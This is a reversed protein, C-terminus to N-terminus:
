WFAKLLRKARAVTIIRLSSNVGDLGFWELAMRSDRPNSNLLSRMSAITSANVFVITAYFDLRMVPRGISSKVGTAKEKQMMTFWQIYMPSKSSDTLNGTKGGLYLHSANSSSIDGYPVCGRNVCVGSEEANYEPGQRSIFKRRFWDFTAVFPGPTLHRGVNITKLPEKYNIRLCSLEFGADGRFRAVRCAGKPVSTGCIERVYEYWATWIKQGFLWGRCLWGRQDMWFDFDSWRQTARGVVIVAASMYSEVLSLTKEFVSTQEDELPGSCQRERKALSWDASRCSKRPSYKGRFEFEWASISSLIIGGFTQGNKGKYFSNNKLGADCFRKAPGAVQPVSGIV